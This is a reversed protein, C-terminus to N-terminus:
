DVNGYKNRLVQRLQVSYNIYITARKKTPMNIFVNILMDVIVSVDRIIIYFKICSSVYNKPLLSSLSSIIGNYKKLGYLSYYYNCFIYTEIAFDVLIYSGFFWGFVMLFSIFAFMGRFM